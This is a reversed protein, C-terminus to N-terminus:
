PTRIALLYPYTLLPDPKSRVRRGDWSSGDAGLIRRMPWLTSADDQGMPRLNTASLYASPFSLSRSARMALWSTNKQSDDRNSGVRGDSGACGVRAPDGKQYAGDLRCSKALIKPFTLKGATRWETEASSKNFDDITINRGRWTTHPTKSSPM